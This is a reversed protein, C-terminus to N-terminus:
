DNYFEEDMFSNDKLSEQLPKGQLIVLEYYGLSEKETNAFNVLSEYRAKPIDIVIKM